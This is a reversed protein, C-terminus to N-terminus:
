GDLLQNLENQATQLAAQSRQLQAQMEVINTNLESVQKQAVRRNTRMNLKLRTEDNVLVDEGTNAAEDSISAQKGVMATNIQEQLQAIEINLGNISKRLESIQQAKRAKEERSVIVEEGTPVGEIHYSERLQQLLKEPDKPGRTSRREKM